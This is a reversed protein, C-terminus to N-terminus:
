SGSLELWRKTAGGSGSGTAALNILFHVLDVSIGDAVIVSTAMEITVGNGSGTSGRSAQVFFKQLASQASTATSLDREQLIFLITVRSFDLVEETVTFTASPAPPPAISSTPTPVVPTIVTPIAPPFSTITTTITVTGVLTTMVQLSPVTITPIVAFVPNLDVEDGSEDEDMVVEATPVGMRTSRGDFTVLSNQAICSLSAQNFKSLITTGVLPVTFNSQAQQVLRPIAQGLTVNTINGEDAMLVLNTTTCGTAGSVACTSGTFGNTCICSCVGRAVVNTGGNQCRLQAQCDTLVPEPANNNNRGNDRFVFFYLPVAIAAAVILVVLVAIVIFAWLPLGCCRRGRKRTTANSDDDNRMLERPEARARLEEAGVPALPWSSTSRRFWSGRGRGQAPTAAPPPFAALMDSLGSQHNDEVVFCNAEHKADYVCKSTSSLEKEFGKEDPWDVNDFRSAPRKGRDMMAALRTARKILDPLSTMSGRAEMDRVADIDLGLKPPRRIASLRSYPQQAPMPRPVEVGGSAAAFAGLMADATVAPGRGTGKAMPLTGSSASSVEVMGNGAQYVDERNQVPSPSPRMSPPSQDNENRTAQQIQESSAGRNMVIAPKGRKGISASRVLKSEDGDDGDHSQSRFSEEEAMMDDFYADDHPDPSFPPSATGWSEPM